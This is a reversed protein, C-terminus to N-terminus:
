DGITTQLAAGLTAGFNINVAMGRQEEQKPKRMGIDAIEMLVKAANTKDKDEGAFQATHAITAIITDLHAKAKKRLPLHPDEALQAKSLACAAAYVPSTAIHADFQAQTIRYAQLALPLHQEGYLTLAEAIEPIEDRQQRTLEPAVIASATMM